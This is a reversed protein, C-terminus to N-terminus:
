VQECAASKEVAVADMGPLTALISPTVLARSCPDRLSLTLSGAESLASRRALTMCALTLALCIVLYYKGHAHNYHSGYPM